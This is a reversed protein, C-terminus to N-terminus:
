IKQCAWWILGNRSNVIGESGMKRWPAPTFYPVHFEGGKDRHAVV